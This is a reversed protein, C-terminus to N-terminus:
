AGPQGPAKEALEVVEERELCVSWRLGSRVHTVLWCHGKIERAARRVAELPTMDREDFEHHMEVIFHPVDWPVEDERDLIARLNRKM